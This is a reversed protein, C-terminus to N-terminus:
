KQFRKTYTKNESTVNFTYTGKPLDSIDFRKSITVQDKYDVNFFDETNNYVSISVSKNNSLYNLDIHEDEVTIVPNFVTIVNPHLIIEESTIVFEQKTSKLDNAIIISYEGSPLYKLNFKKGKKTSYKDDFILVGAKDRIEVSLYDSKWLKTDVIFAKTGTTTISNVNGAFTSVSSFLVAIIMNIITSKM